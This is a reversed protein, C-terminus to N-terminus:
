PSPPDCSLRAGSPLPGTGFDFDLIPDGPMVSPTGPPAPPISCGILPTIRFGSVIPSRTVTEFQIDLTGDLVPGSAAYAGPYYLYAGVLQAFPNVAADNLGLEAASVLFSRPTSSDVCGNLESFLFEVSYCGYELDMEVHCVTGAQEPMLIATELNTAIVPDAVPMGTTIDLIAQTTAVSSFDAGAEPVVPGCGCDLDTPCAVAVGDCTEEMDCEDVVDRCVTATDLLASVCAYAVCGASECPGSATCDADAVCVGDPLLLCEAPVPSKKAVFAGGTDKAVNGGFFACLSAGGVELVAAVGELPSTLAFDGLGTVDLRTAKKRLLRASAPQAGGSGVFAFAGNKLLSWGSAPLDLVRVQSTGEAFLTLSAGDVTPDLAGAAVDRTWSVLAKTGTKTTSLKLKAGPLLEEGAFVPSSTLGAVLFSLLLFRRIM